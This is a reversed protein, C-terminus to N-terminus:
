GRSRLIGTKVNKKKSKSVGGGVGLPKGKKHNCSACHNCKKGNSVGGGVGLYKIGHYPCPPCKTCVTIIGHQQPAPTKKRKRELFYVSKVQGGNSYTTILEVRLKNKERRLIVGRRLKGQKLVGAYSAGLKVIEFASWQSPVPHALQFISVKAINSQTKSPTVVVKVIGKNKGYNYWEGGEAPYNAISEFSMLSFCFIALSLVKWLHSVFLHNKM